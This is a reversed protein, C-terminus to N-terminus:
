EVLTIVKFPTTIPNSNSYGSVILDSAKVFLGRSILGTAYVAGAHDQLEVYMGPAYIIGDFVSGSNGRQILMCPSVKAAPCKGDTTNSSPQMLAISNYTGSTPAYISLAANGQSLSGGAIDVTAGLTNSFVGNAYNASGFAVSGSFQVGNEFVYQVGNGAAGPLVVGNGITVANTFCVVNNTASGAYTAQTSTTISGTSFTQKCGGAPIDPLNLPIPPSEPPANIRTHGPVVAPPGMVGTDNGVVVLSAANISTNGNMSIASTSNSNVYVGCNSADITGNGKMALEDSLTPDMLWVCADSNGPAGAVARAGVQVSGFGFLSMFVTPNPQTVIAEVFGGSTIPGSQPPVNICTQAGSGSCAGTTCTGSAGNATAANCGMTRATSASKYYYYDLAGATAAADAAAQLNRKARFLVGVDIALAMFGLLVTMALATLVLTQGNEDKLFRM